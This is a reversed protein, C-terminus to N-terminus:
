ISILPVDKKITFIVSYVNVILVFLAVYSAYVGFRIQENLSFLASIFSIAINILLLIYSQKLTATSRM